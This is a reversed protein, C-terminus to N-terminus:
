RQFRDYGANGSSDSLELHNSSSAASSMTLRRLQWSDLVTPRGRFKALQEQPTAEDSNPCAVTSHWHKMKPCQFVHMKLSSHSGAFSDILDCSDGRKVNLLRLTKGM